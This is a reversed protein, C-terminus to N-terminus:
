IGEKLSFQKILREIYLAGKQDDSFFDKLTKEAKILSADVTEHAIKTQIQKKQILCKRDYIQDARQQKSLNNAIKAQDISSNWFLLKQKLNKQEVIEEVINKKLEEIEKYLSTKKTELELDAEQDHSMETKLIPYIYHYFIYLFIISLTLMNILKFGTDIFGSM